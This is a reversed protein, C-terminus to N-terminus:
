LVYMGPALRRAGNRFDPDWGFRYFGESLPGLVLEGKRTGDLGWVVARFRAKSPLTMQMRFNGDRASVQLDLPAAALAMKQLMGMRALKDATGSYIFLTDQALGSAPIEKGPEVRFKMGRAPSVAWTEYGAPLDQSLIKLPPLSDGEGGLAVKWEQVANRNLRIWDSALSHGHRMAAMSLGKNRQPLSFEDEIGLGDSSSWDAGLRLVRSAGWGLSLNIRNEVGAKKMALVTIPRPSLTVVAGELFNYVYYGRWPKLSESEVYNLSTSSYEWLGKIPFSRYVEGLNRSYPWYLEELHPNAIQNWGHHLTVSFTGQGGPKTTASPLSFDPIRTRSGLWFSQGPKLVANSDMPEYVSDIYNWAASEIVAGPNAARLGKLTMPPDLDLPIGVLDYPSRPLGIGWLAPSKVSKLRQSLSLMTGPDAPFFAAQQFDSVIVQVNLPKLAGAPHKLKAALDSGGFLFKQNVNRAADDNRKLDYSLNAINDTVHFTVRTSDSPSPDFSESGYTIVPPAADIGMFYTGAQTLTVTDASSVFYVLGSPEVKYMSRKDSSPSAFTVRPFEKGTRAEASDLSLTLGYQVGQFGVLNLPKASSIRARVKAVEDEPIRLTYGGAIPTTVGPRLVFEVVGIIEYSDESVESSLNGAAAVAKLTMSANVPIEDGKHYVLQTEPTPDTGDLTYFISARRSPSSLTVSVPNPYSGGGPSAIPTEPVLTYTAVLLKSNEFGKKVAIVQITTTTDIFIPKTYKESGTGPLSGDRTFYMDAGATPPTLWILLTDKFTTQNNTTATAPTALQGGNLTYGFTYVASAVGDAIAIASITSTTRLILGAAPFLPSDVTPTGDLIYRIEAGAPASLTVTVVSDFVKPPPSATIPGPILTYTETVIDSNLFGTRMAIVRVTTTRTITIAKGEYRKRTSSTDPSSGDLTYWLDATTDAPSSLTISAQSSFKDGTPFIKPPLVKSPNVELRYTMKLTDSYDLNPAKAVAIITTTANITFPTATKPTGTLPSTGDLTYYVTAGPASLSCSLTNKFTPNLPRITPKPTKGVPTYTYTETMIDSPRFKDKYARAKLTTTAEFRITDGANFPTSTQVPDSGNTTYYIGAGPTDNALTVKFNPYFSTGPPRATPKSLKPEQVTLKASDSFAYTSPNALDTYANTVRVRYSGADGLAAAAITFVSDDQKPAPTVTASGKYWQYLLKPEGTAKSVLRVREGVTASAAAPQLVIKIPAPLPKVVLHCLRSVADPGAGNKVIVKYYGASSPSVPDIAYTSANTGTNTFTGTRTASYQWQYTVGPFGSAAVMFGAKSKDFVSLLTDLDSTIRPDANITIKVTKNSTGYANKATLAVDFTGTANPLGSILSGTLNLGSPLVSTTFTIPSTGTASINYSFATGTKATATPPSTINPAITSDSISIKLVKSDNGQSNSATLTVSFEGKATPTGSLVGAGAQAGTGATFTLWAPLVGTSLTPIPNGTAVVHYSFAVKATGSATAQTVNPSTIVAAALPLSITFTVTKSAAPNVGNSATVTANYTGITNPTGSVAGTGNNISLGPPLGTANFKPAPYGTATVTYITVNAGLIGSATAPSTIVPAAPAPSITFTVTKSAAPNVGNSATVTANYTGATTPTGSIAGTNANIALGPPLGAPSGFTPPPYGSATVTYLTANVGVTGTATAMTNTIAPAAP